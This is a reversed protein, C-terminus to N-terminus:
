SYSCSPTAGVVCCCRAVDTSGCIGGLGAAVIIVLARCKMLWGMSRYRETWTGLFATSALVLLPWYILAPLADVVYHLAQNGGAINIM